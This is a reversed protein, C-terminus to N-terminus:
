AKIAAEKPKTGSLLQLSPKREPNRQMIQALKRLRELPLPGIQKHTQLPARGIQCLGVRQAVVAKAHQIPSRHQTLNDPFLPPKPPFPSRVPRGQNNPVLPLPAGHVAERLMLPNM